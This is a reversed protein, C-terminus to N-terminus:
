NWSAVLAKAREAARAVSEGETGSFAGPYYGEITNALPTNNTSRLDALTMYPARVGRVELAFSRVVRSLEHHAEAYTTQGAIHRANVEDVLGVYRERVTPTLHYAPQPRPSDVAVPKKRTLWWILFYGVAIMVFIGLGLLLWIVSYQVPPYYVEDGLM